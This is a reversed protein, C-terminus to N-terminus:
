QNSWCHRNKAEARSAPIAGRQNPSNGQISLPQGVTENNLSTHLPLYFKALQFANGVFMRLYAAYRRGQRQM